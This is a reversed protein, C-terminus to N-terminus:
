TALFISKYRITSKIVIIKTLLINKNKYLNFYKILLILFIYFM